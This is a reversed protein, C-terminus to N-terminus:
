ERHRDAAIREHINVTRLRAAPQKPDQMLRTTPDPPDIHAAIKRPQYRYYGALGRRSDHMPGTSMATRRIENVAQPVFVV